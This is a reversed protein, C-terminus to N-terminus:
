RKLEKTKSVIRNQYYADLLAVLKAIIIKLNPKEDKGYDQYYECCANDSFEVEWFSM